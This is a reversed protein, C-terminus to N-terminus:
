TASCPEHFREFRLPYLTMRMGNSFPLGSPPYSFKRVPQTGSSDPCSTHPRGTPTFIILSPDNSTTSSPPLFTQRTVYLPFFYSHPLSPALSRPLSPSLSRSLGHALSRFSYDM